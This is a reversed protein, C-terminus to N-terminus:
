VKLDRQEPEFMALLAEIKRRDVYHDDIKNTVLKRQTMAIPM